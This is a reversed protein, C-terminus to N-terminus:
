SEDAVWTTVAGLRREVALMRMELSAMQIVIQEFGVTLARLCANIEAVVPNEPGITNTAIRSALSVIRADLEDHAAELKDLRTRRPTPGEDEMTDIDPNM